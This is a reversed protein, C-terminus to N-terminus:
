VEVVYINTFDERFHALRTESEKMSLVAYEAISEELRVSLVLTRKFQELDAADVLEWFQPPLGASDNPVGTVFRTQIRECYANFDVPHFYVFYVDAIAGTFIDKLIRSSAIAGEVIVPATQIKRSVEQRVGSIFADVQETPGIGRFAVIYGKAPPQVDFPEIVSTTVINDLEIESYGLAQIRKAFTTKGTCTKGGIYIIRPKEKKINEYVGEKNM